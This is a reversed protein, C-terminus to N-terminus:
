VRYTEERAGTGLAWWLVAVLVILLGCATIALEGLLGIFAILLGAATILPWISPSSTSPHPQTAIYIEQSSEAEPQVSAALLEEVASHLARADFPKTLYAISEQLELQSSAAKASVPVPPEWALVVVPLSLLYPNARVAELLSWDSTVGGDVDIVVVDPRQAELVPAPLAALSSAEIVDIGRYQLGLAILRRLAPDAEVLLVRSGTRYAM